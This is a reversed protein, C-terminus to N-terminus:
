SGVAEDGGDTDREGDLEGEFVALGDLEDDLVGVNAAEFTGEIGGNM